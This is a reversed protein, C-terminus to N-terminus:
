PVDDVQALAFARNLPLWWFSTSSDGDGASQRRLAGIEAVRAARGRSREAVDVGPVSSNRRSASPRMYKMSIFVLSWTSCGTVSITVPMSM